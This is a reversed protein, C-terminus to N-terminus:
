MNGHFSKFFVFFLFQLLINLILAGIKIKQKQLLSLYVACRSIVLVMQFAFFSNIVLPHLEM